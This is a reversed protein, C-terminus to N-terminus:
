RLVIPDNVFTEPRYKLESKSRSILHFGADDLRFVSIEYHKPSANGINESKVASWLKFTNNEKKSVELKGQESVPLTFFRYHGLLGVFVLFFQADGTTGSGSAIVVMKRSGSGCLMAIKTPRLGTGFSKLAELKALSVKLLEKQGSVIKFEADPTESYPFTTTTTGTEYILLRDSTSLIINDRVIGKAIFPQEVSTPRRFTTLFRVSNICGTEGGSSSASMLASICVVLLRNM